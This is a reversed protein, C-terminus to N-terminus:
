RGLLNRIASGTCGNRRPVTTHNPLRSNMDRPHPYSITSREGRAGSGSSTVMSGCGLRLCRGPRPERLVRWAHHSRSRGSVVCARPLAGREAPIGQGATPVSDRTPSKDLRLKPLSFIGAVCPSAEDDLETGGGGSPDAGTSRRGATAGDGYGKPNVFAAAAKAEV